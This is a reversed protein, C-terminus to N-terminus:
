YSKKPNIHLRLYKHLRSFQKGTIIIKLLLKQNNTKQFTLHSPFLIVKNRLKKLFQSNIHQLLFKKQKFSTSNSNSHKM